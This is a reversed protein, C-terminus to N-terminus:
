FEGGGKSEASPKIESTASFFSLILLPSCMVGGDDELWRCTHGPLSDEKRNSKNFLGFKSLFGGGGM